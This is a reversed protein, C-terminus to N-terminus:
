QEELNYGIVQKYMTFYVSFLYPLVILIGIFFFLLGSILFFYNLIVTLIIPIPQKNVVQISAKLAQITNMKGFIILPITFITLTNVLWNIVMSVMDLEQMKLPITILIVFASILLQSIFVYVGKRNFFYKFISTFKPIQDLSVEANIKYYGAILVASLASVIAFFALYYYFYPPETIQTTLQLVIAQVEEPTSNPDIEVLQGLITSSLLVIAFISLFLTSLVLLFTKRYYTFAEAMVQFPAIFYSNQQINDLKEKLQSM